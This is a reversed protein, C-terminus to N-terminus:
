RPTGGVVLEYRCATLSGSHLVDQIRIGTICLSITRQSGRTLSLASGVSLYEWPRLCPVAAHRAGGQFGKRFMRRSENKLM